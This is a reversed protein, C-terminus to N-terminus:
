DCNYIRSHISLRFLFSAEQTSQQNRGTELVFDMKKLFWCAHCQEVTSRKHQLADELLIDFYPKPPSSTKQLISLLCQYCFFCKCNCTIGKKSKCPWTSTRNKSTNTKSTEHGHCCLLQKSMTSHFVEPALIERTKRTFRLHRRYRWNDICGQYDELVKNENSALFLLIFETNLICILNWTRRKGIEVSFVTTVM